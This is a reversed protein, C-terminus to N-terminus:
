RLHVASHEACIRDFVHQDAHHGCGTYGCLIEVDCEKSLEDWLQELRVAADAHGAKWLTPAADGCAAVPVQEGTTGRAADAVLARAAKRFRAEDVRDDIMFQSLVEAVDLPWYRRDGVARDVDIGRTELEECLKKHRPEGTVVIFSRGSQLAYEAFHVYGELLSREDAYFAAEHRHTDTPLREEKTEM